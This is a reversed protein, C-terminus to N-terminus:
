GRKLINSESVLESHCIIKCYKEIFLAIEHTKYLPQIETMIFSEYM